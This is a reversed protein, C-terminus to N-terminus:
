LGPKRLQGQVLEVVLLTGDAFFDHLDRAYAEAARVIGHQAARDIRLVHVVQEIIQAPVGGHRGLSIAMRTTERWHRECTSHYACAGSALFAPSASEIMASKFALLRGAPM